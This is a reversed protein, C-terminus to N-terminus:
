CGPAAGRGGCRAASEPCSRIGVDNADGDAARRRMRLRRVARRRLRRCSRRRRRRAARRPPTRRPRLPARPRIQASPSSLAARRRRSRRAAPRGRPRSRSCHARAFAPPLPPRDRCAHSRPARCAWPALGFPPNSAIRVSTRSPAGHGRPTGREGACTCLEVIGCRGTQEPRRGTSTLAPSNRLALPTLRPPTPARPHTLATAARM